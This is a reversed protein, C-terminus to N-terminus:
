DQLINTGSLRMLSHLAVPKATGALLNMEDVQGTFALPAFFPGCGTEYSDLTGLLSLFVYLLRSEWITV